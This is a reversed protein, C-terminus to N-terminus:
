EYSGPMSFSPSASKSRLSMEDFVPFSASFKLMQFMQKICAFCYWPEDQIYVISFERTERIESSDSINNEPTQSPEKIAILDNLWSRTSFCGRAGCEHCKLQGSFPHYNGGFVHRRQNYKLFVELLTSQTWGFHKLPGIQLEQAVFQAIDIGLEQLVENWITFGISSLILLSTPTEGDLDETSGDHAHSTYHPYAGMELLLKIESRFIRENFLPFLDNLTNCLAILPSWRSEKCCTFNACRTINTFWELFLASNAHTWVQMINHRTLNACIDPLFSQIIRVALTLSKPHIRRSETSPVITYENDRDLRIARLLINWSWDTVTGFGTGADSFDYVDFLLNLIGVSSQFTSYPRLAVSTFYLSHVLFYLTCPSVLPLSFSGDYATPTIEAGQNLLFTFLQLDEWYMAM